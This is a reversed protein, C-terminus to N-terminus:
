FPLDDDEEQQIVDQPLPKSPSSNEPKQNYPNPSSQQDRPSLMTFNDAVIETTYRTAGTEDQYQRSKIKGEIYVKMGKKLYNEAVDALGRWVVINHWDTIERKENTSKDVYSESTAVTFRALKVGNELM